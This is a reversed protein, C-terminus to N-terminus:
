FPLVEKISNNELDNNELDNNLDICHWTNDSRSIFEEPEENQSETWYDVWECFTKNFDQIQDNNICLADHYFKSRSFYEDYGDYKFVKIDKNILMNILDSVLERGDKLSECDKIGVVVLSDGHGPKEINLAKWFYISINISFEM